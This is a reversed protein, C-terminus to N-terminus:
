EMGLHGWNDLVMALVSVVASPPFATLQTEVQFPFPAPYLRLAECDFGCLGM